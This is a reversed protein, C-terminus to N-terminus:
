HQASQGLFNIPSRGFYRASAAELGVVNGGFPSHTAYLTMIEDKSYSFELRLAWIMEILKEFYSRKRNKRAMRIVQMTITSGGSVIKKRKINQSVARFTSGVDVGPHVIFINTKL